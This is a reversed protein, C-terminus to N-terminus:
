SAPRERLSDALARLSPAAAVDDDPDDRLDIGAPADRHEISLDVLLRVNQDTIGLALRRGEVDVIAITASRNLAQRDLIEIPRTAHRRRSRAHGARGRASSRGRGRGTLRAMVRMTAILLVFVIVVRVLTTTLSPDSMAFM